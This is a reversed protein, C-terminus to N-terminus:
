RKQCHPCFHTGRQAVLIRRIPTSCVTCPQGTRRYVNHLLQFTGARGDADVYNSVSSGRREIAEALVSVIARYLRQAREKRLRSGIALPHIRARFLAEDAYINGMGRLFTQNLLLAKLCSRHKRLLDAFREFDISLPDPGLKSLRSPLGDCLELRGLKRIDDYLLVGRDLTLLVRTHPGAVGDLLLRGTMGLHVALCREHELEFLIFKGHRRVARIRQGTLGRSTEEPDGRLVLLSRFEANEIRRGKLRPALARVITEVEPLEPM